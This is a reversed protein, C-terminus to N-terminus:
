CHPDGSAPVEAEQTALDSEPKPPSKAWDSPPAKARSLEQFPLPETQTALKPPVKESDSLKPTVPFLAQFPLPETQM